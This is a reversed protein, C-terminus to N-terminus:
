KVWDSISVNKAFTARIDVVRQEEDLWSIIIKMIKNGKNTVIEAECYRADKAPDNPLQHLIKIADIVHTSDKFQRQFSNKMRSMESTTKNSHCTPLAESSALDSVGYLHDHLQTQLFWTFVIIVLVISLKVLTFGKSM